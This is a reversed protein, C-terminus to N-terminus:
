DEQQEQQKPDIGLLTNFTKNILSCNISASGAFGIIIWIVFIQIFFSFPLAFLLIIPTLSIVAMLFSIPLKALSIKFSNLVQTKFNNEFKANLPYFWCSTLIAIIGVIGLISFFVMEFGINMILVIYIDFIIFAILLSYLIFFITSHKFDRKFAIFFQKYPQGEDNKLKFMASYLACTAAGITVIPLCCIIFFVNLVVLDTLRSLSNMLPSDYAFFKM